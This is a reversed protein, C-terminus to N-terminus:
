RTEKWPPPWKVGGDESVQRGYRRVAEGVLEDDTWGARAADWCWQCWGLGLCDDEECQCDTLQYRLSCARLLSGQKNM